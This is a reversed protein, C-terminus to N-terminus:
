HSYPLVYLAMNRQEGLIILPKYILPKYIHDFQYNMNLYKFRKKKVVIPDLTM